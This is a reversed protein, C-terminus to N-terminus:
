IAIKKSSDRLVAVPTLSPSLSEPHVNRETSAREAVNSALPRVTVSSRGSGAACSLGAGGAEAGGQRFPRRARLTRYPPQPPRGESPHASPSIWGAQSALVAAFFLPNRRVPASAAAGLAQRTEISDDYTSPGQHCATNQHESGKPRSRDYTRGKSAANSRQGQHYGVVKTGIM